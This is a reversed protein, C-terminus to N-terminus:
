LNARRVEDWADGFYVDEIRVIDVEEKGGDDEVDEVEDEEVARRANTGGVRAAERERADEEERQIVEWTKAQNKQDEIAQSEWSYPQYPAKEFITGDLGSTDGSHFAKYIQRYRLILIEEAM